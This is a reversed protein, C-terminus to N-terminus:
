ETIQVSSGQADYNVSGAFLSITKKKGGKKTKLKATSQIHQKYRQFIRMFANVTLNPLKENCLHMEYMCSVGAYMLVTYNNCDEAKFRDLYSASYSM